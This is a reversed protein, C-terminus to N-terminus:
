SCRARTRAAAAQTKLTASARPYRTSFEGLVACADPNRRTEILSQGLKVVADPAWTTQPWGRIAAVYAAAADNYIGQKYLSEGLYYRAEPADPSNPHAELFTQMAQGAARHQGDVFLQMANDFAKAPDTALLQADAATTSTARELADLRALIQRNTETAAQADANRRDAEGRLAAVDAGLTDIQANLRRITEELDGVRNLMQDVQAQTEAPQVVVPRGTDRGQFLISRMERLTQEVRDLRRDAQQGLARPLPDTLPDAQAQAATAGVLVALAALGSVILTRM